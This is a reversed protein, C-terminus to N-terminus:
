EVTSFSLRCLPEPPLPQQLFHRQPLLYHHSSLQQLQRVVEVVEVLKVVVVLAVMSVVEEAVLRPAVLVLQEEATLVLLVEVEVLAALTLHVLVVLQAAELYTPVVMALVEVVEM